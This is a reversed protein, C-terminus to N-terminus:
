STPQGMEDLVDVVLAALESAHDYTRSHPIESIPTKRYGETFLLFPVKARQATEADVESDGVYLRPGASTVADFSANLHAPDPKRVRLTDGGFVTAFHHDLKLASLIHRAPAEPKNTCVGLVCGMEQLEALAEAVGPYPVTRDSSAANYYSLTKKTLDAHHALPLGCHLIVREVLKPLGNGVFQKITDQPLPATDTDQLMKNAAAAIDPISDVLTGDLDFMITATM